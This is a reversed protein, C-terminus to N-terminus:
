DANEIAKLDLGSKKYTLMKYLLESIYAGAEVAPIGQEHINSVVTRRMEPMGMTPRYAIYASMSKATALGPREGILMCVVDADTLEGIQDMVGVRCYKVFIHKDCDLGYYNLGQKISPIIEKINAEIAASSLGDGVVLQIKPHGTIQQKIKIENEKSFRRGLDPRTLYEDKSKCFTQISIFNMEEILKPNVYSFVSDQAAAHDARFRLISQTKYRPGCRWLGLRAPTFSKMKMYGKQQNPNPVLLQKRIDVKSIDELIENSQENGKEM